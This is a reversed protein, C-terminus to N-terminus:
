KYRESLFERCYRKNMVNHIFKVLDDDDDDDDSFIIFVVCFV